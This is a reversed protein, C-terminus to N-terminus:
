HNRNQSDRSVDGNVEEGEASITIFQKGRKRDTTRDQRAGSADQGSLDESTKLLPM